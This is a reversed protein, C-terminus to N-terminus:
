EFRLHLDGSFTRFKDQRGTWELWRPFMLAAFTNPGSSLPLPMQRLLRRAEDGRGAALLASALMARPEGDEGPDAAAVVHELLPIAEAPHSDLALAYGLALERFQSPAARLETDARAVWEGASAAPFAFFRSLAAV